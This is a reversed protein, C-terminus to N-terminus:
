HVQSGLGSFDGSKPNLRLSLSPGHYTFFTWQSKKVLSIPLSYTTTYEM